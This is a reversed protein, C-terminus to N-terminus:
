RKGNHKEKKTRVLWDNLSENEKLRGALACGTGAFNAFGYVGRDNITTCLVVTKGFFIFTKYVDSMQESM